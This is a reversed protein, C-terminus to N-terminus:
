ESPDIGAELEISFQRVAPRLFIRVRDGPVYGRSRMVRILADGRLHGHKRSTQIHVAHHSGEIAYLSSDIVYPVFVPPLDLNGSDLMSRQLELSCYVVTDSDARTGIPAVPHHRARWERMSETALESALSYGVLRYLGFDLASFIASTRLALQFTGLPTNQQDCVEEKIVSWSAVGGRRKLAEYIRLETDSLISPPSVTECPEIDDHQCLRFRGSQVLVQLVVQRPADLDIEVLQDTAWGSSRRSRDVATLVTEVDVRQEAVSAIKLACRIIRNEGSEPGFWFWGSSESLWEFGPLARVFHTFAPLDLSPEEEAHFGYVSHLQAAGVHRLMRRCTDFVRRGHAVGNGEKSVVYAPVGDPTGVDSREIVFPQLDLVELVFDHFGRLSQRAGLLPRFERELAEVSAPLRKNIETILRDICPTVFQVGKARDIMRACVQRVREKKVNQRQGIEELTRSDGNLGYRLCFLHANEQQASSLTEWEAKRRLASADSLWAGIDRIETAVTGRPRYRLQVPERRERAPTSVDPDLMWATSVGLADAWDQLKKSALRRPFLKEWSSLTVSSVGIQESVSSASLNLEKRRAKARRALEAREAASESDQDCSHADDSGVGPGRNQWELALRLIEEPATELAAALDDKHRDWLMTSCRRELYRFNQYAMGLRDAVDGPPLRARERLTRIATSLAEPSPALIAELREEGEHKASTEM